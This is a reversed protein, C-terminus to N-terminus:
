TLDYLFLLNAYTGNKLTANYLVFYYAEEDLAIVAFKEKSNFVFSLSEIEGRVEKPIVPGDTYLPLNYYWVMNFGAQNFEQWM